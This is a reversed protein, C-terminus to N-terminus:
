LPQSAIQLSKGILAAGNVSTDRERESRAIELSIEVLAKCREYRRQQYSALAAAPTQDRSLEEALVVADEVAMGAGQAIHATTAHAADGILVIRGRYWPPPMLIAEFPRYVVKSSDTILERTEAILGGFEALRERFAVALDDDRWPWTDGPPSETMFIYMLDSALPCFGAKGSTGTYLQLTTVDPHRPLNYRWVTQGTYVPQHEAGFALKRVLSRLGDAGIMLDYHDSSGDTFEVKVADDSQEFASITMGLRVPVGAEHVAEQLITHLRPRSIGNAGPYQPGAILPQPIEVVQNGQSDYFRAANFSYGDALIRDVLGAMAYARLANGQQIIGVGYVDWKPNAEVLEVQIGARRLAAANVLGAIGGGVILVKQVSAM